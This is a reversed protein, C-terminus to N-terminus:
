LLMTDHNTLWDFNGWKQEVAVAISYPREKNM